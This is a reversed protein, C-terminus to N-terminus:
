NMWCACISYRSQTPVISPASTLHLLFDARAEARLYSLPQPPSDWSTFGLLLAVLAEQESQVIYELFSLDEILIPSQPWPSSNELSFFATQIHFVKVLPRNCYFISLPGALYIWFPIQHLSLPLLLYSGMRGPSLSPGSSSVSGPARLAWCVAWWLALWPLFHAWACSRPTDSISCPLLLLPLEPGPKRHQAFWSLTLDLAFAMLRDSNM